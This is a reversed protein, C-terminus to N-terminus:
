EQIRGQRGLPVRRDRRLQRGPNPVPRVKARGGSKGFQYQQPHQGGFSLVRLRPLRVCSEFNQLKWFLITEWKKITAKLRDTNVCENSLINDLLPCQALPLCETNQPCYSTGRNRLPDGSSQYSSQPGGTLTM